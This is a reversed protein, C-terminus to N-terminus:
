MFCGGLGFLQVITEWFQLVIYILNLKSLAYLKFKNKESNSHLTSTVCWREVLSLCVLRVTSLLSYIVVLFM